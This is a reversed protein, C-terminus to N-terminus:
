VSFKNYECGILMKTTFFLVATSIFLAQGLGFLFGTLFRLTNNSERWKWLQTYGDIIMPISLVLSIWLPITVSFMLFVPTTMYGLYIATCRACLPFVKGKFRFSRDERRHCPIWRLKLLDEYMM